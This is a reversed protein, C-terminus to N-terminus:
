FSLKRHNLAWFESLNTDPYLYESDTMVKLYETLIELYPKLSGTEFTQAYDLDDKQDACDQHICRDRLKRLDQIKSSVSRKIEYKIGKSIKDGRKKKAIETARRETDVNSLYSLMSLGELISYTSLVCDIVISPRVAGSLNQHGDIHLEDDSLLVGLKTELGCLRFSANSIAKNFDLDSKALKKSFHNTLYIQWTRKTNCHFYETKQDYYHPVIRFRKLVENPSRKEKM